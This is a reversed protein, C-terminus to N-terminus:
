EGRMCHDQHFELDSKAVEYFSAIWALPYHSESVLMEIGGRHKHLCIPCSTM